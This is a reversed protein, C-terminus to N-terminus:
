IKKKSFFFLDSDSVMDSFNYEHKLMLLVLVSYNEIVM